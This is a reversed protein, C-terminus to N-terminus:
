SLSGRREPEGRRQSADAKNQVVVVVVVVEVIPRTHTHTHTVKPAQNSESAAAAATVRENKTRGVAAQSKGEGSMWAVVVRFAARWGAVGGGRERLPTWDLGSSTGGLGLSFGLGAKKREHTEDM